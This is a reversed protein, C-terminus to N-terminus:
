SGCSELFRKNTMMISRSCNQTDGLTSKYSAFTPSCLWQLNCLLAVFQSPKHPVSHCTTARSNFNVFFSLRLQCLRLQVEVALSQPLFFELLRALFIRRTTQQCQPERHCQFNDRAGCPLAVFVVCCHIDLVFCFSEESLVKVPCTLICAYLSLTTSVSHTFSLFLTLNSLPAPSTGIFGVFSTCIASRLTADPSSSFCCSSFLILIDVIAFSYRLRCIIFLM